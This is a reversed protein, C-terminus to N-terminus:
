PVPSSTRLRYPARARCQSQDRQTHLAGALLSPAECPAGHPPAPPAMGQHSRASLSIHQLAGQVSRSRCACSLRPRSHALCARTCTRYADLATWPSNHDRIEYESVLQALCARKCTCACTCTHTHTTHIILTSSPTDTCTTHTHARATHVHPICMHTYVRTTRAHGHKMSAHQM